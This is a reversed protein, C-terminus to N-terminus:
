CRRRCPSARQVAARAAHRLRGTSLPHLSTTVSWWGEFRNQFIPRAAPLLAFTGEPRCKFILLRLETAQVFVKSGTKEQGPQAHTSSAALSSGDGRGQQYSFVFAPPVQFLHLFLLVPQDEVAKKSAPNSKCSVLKGAQNEQCAPNTDDQKM